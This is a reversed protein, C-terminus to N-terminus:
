IVYKFFAMLGASFAASAPVTVVWAIFINRFLSWDVNSHSRVRGVVVISGVKCHTTSIPIGIKSAVLVTLAAGVEICFGSPFFVLCIHHSLFM